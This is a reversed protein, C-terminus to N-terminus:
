TSQASNEILDMMEDPCVVDRCVLKRKVHELVGDCVNKTHGWVLFCLNIGDNLGTIVRWVVYWLVYRNKKQGACNDAHLILSQSSVKKQKTASLTNQLMSAVKNATKENPWHGELLGSIFTTSLNSSAVGFIDFKLGTVFLLQGPQRQLKPLLVKEAFDFFRTWSSQKNDGFWILM